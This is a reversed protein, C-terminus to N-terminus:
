RRELGGVKVAASAVGDIEVLFSFGKLPDNRASPMETEGGPLRAERYIELDHTMTGKYAKKDPDPYAM